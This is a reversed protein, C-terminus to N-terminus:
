PAGPGLLAACAGLLLREDGLVGAGRGAGVWVAQPGYRLRQKWFEVLAMGLEGMM